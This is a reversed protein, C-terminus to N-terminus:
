NLGYFKLIFNFNCLVIFYILLGIAILILVTQILAGVLLKTRQRSNEKKKFGNQVRAITVTRRSLPKNHESFEDESLITHSIQDERSDYRVMPVEGRATANNRPQEYNFTNKVIRVHQNLDVDDTLESTDYPTIRNVRKSIIMKFVDKLKFFGNMPLNEPQEPNVQNFHDKSHASNTDVLTINDNTLKKKVRRKDIAKFLDKRVESNDM